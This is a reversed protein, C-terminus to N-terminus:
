DRCDAPLRDAFGDRWVDSDGRLQRSALAGHVFAEDVPGRQAGSADLYFWQIGPM